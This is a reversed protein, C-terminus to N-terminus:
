GRGRAPLRGGSARRAETILERPTLGSLRTCERTLHSQDAYGLEAATRALGAGAGNALAQVLGVFRQFRLIRDLTKPGYGVADNFRRRLQRESTGLEDSLTGVRVEPRGLRAAAAHILRDAAGIRERRALLARELEERRHAGSRAGAVREDLGDLPWVEALPLRTDLLESAPVGLVRGATGPRLRLGVVTGAPVSSLFPGRDPGAVVLENARWMLDVSGDPLIRSPGPAGAPVDREWTCAVLDRLEARPEFERYSM